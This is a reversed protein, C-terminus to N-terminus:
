VELELHGTREFKSEDGQAELQCQMEPSTSLSELLHEMSPAGIRALALDLAQSKDEAVEYGIVVVETQALSCEDDGDDADDGDGTDGSESAPGFEDDADDEDQVYALSSPAWCRWLQIEFCKMGDPVDWESVYVGDHLFSM